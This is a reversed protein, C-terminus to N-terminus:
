RDVQDSSGDALWAPGNQYHFRKLRRVRASVLFTLM